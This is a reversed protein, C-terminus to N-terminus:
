DHCIVPFSWLKEAGQTKSEVILTIDRAEAPVGFEVKLDQRCFSFKLVADIMLKEPERTLMPAGAIAAGYANRRNYPGKMSEYVKSTVLLIQEKDNIKYKVKFQSAFGEVGRWTSFVLPLPSATTIFGLGEFIENGLLNGLISIHGVLLVIVVPWKNIKLNKM